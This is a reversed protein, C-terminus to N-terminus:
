ITQTWQEAITMCEQKPGCHDRITEIPWGNDTRLITLYYRGTSRGVLQVHYHPPLGKMFSILTDSEKTWTPAPM